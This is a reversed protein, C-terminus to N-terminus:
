SHFLGHLTNLKIIYEYKIASNRLLSILATAPNGLHVSECLLRSMYANWVNDLHTDTIYQLNVVIISVYLVELWHMKLTERM